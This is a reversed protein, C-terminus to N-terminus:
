IRHSVFKTTQILGVVEKKKVGDTKVEVREEWNGWGCENECCRSGWLSSIAMCTIGLSNHKELM